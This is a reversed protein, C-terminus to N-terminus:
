PVGQSGSKEDPVAVAVDFDEIDVLLSGVSSKIMKYFHSNIRLAYRFARKTVAAWQCSSPVGSRSKFMKDRNLFM